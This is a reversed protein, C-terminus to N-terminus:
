GGSLGDGRNELDIQMISNLGVICLTPSLTCGQQIQALEDM